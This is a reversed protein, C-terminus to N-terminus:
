PQRKYAKVSETKPLMDLWEAPNELRGMGGGTAMEGGGRCGRIPKFRRYM